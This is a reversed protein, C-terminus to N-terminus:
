SYNYVKQLYNDIIVKHHANSNLTEKVVLKQKFFNIIQLNM